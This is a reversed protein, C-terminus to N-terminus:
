IYALNKSLRMADAKCTESKAKALHVLQYFESKFNRMYHIHGSLKTICPHDLPLEGHHPKKAGLNGEKEPAYQCEAETIRGAAVMESKFHSLKSCTTADEYTVIAAV